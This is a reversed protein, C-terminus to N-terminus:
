QRRKAASRDRDHEEVRVAVLLARELPPRQRRGLPDSGGAWRGTSTATLTLGSSVGALADFAALAQPSAETAGHCQSIPVRLCSAGTHAAYWM